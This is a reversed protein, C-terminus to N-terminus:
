KSARAFHPSSLIWSGVPVPPLLPNFHLNNLLNMFMGKIIDLILEEYIIICIQSNAYFKIANHNMDLWHKFKEKVFKPWDPNDFADLPALAIHQSKKNQIGYRRNYEAIFAMIPDRVIIVARDFESFYCFM